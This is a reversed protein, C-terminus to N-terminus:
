PKVEVARCQELTIRGADILERVLDIPCHRALTGNGSVFAEVWTDTAAAVSAPDATKKVFPEWRRADLWNESMQVFRIANGKQERAYARAAALLQEPSAGAALAIRLGKETEPRSGPRPHINLFRDVFVSNLDITQPDAESACPEKVPESVPKDGSPHLYTDGSLPTLDAGLTSNPSDGSQPTLDATFDADCGLQYLTSLRKKKVEDYRTKRKILCKAELGTLCKNLGGNSLGTRERLYAQEPFCGRSPNHCDALFFLVRFEGSTMLDAPIDSFWNTAKHSM